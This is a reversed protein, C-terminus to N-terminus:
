SEAVVAGATGDAEGVAPGADAEAVHHILHADRQAGVLPDAVEGVGQVRREPLPLARGRRVSLVHLTKEEKAEGREHDPQRQRRVSGRIPYAGLGVDPIILQEVHPRPDGLGGVSVEDDSEVARMESM